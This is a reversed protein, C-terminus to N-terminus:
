KIKKLLLKDVTKHFIEKNQKRIYLLEEVFDNAWNKVTQTSVRKQLKDLRRRKEEESMTLAQLIANEIEQEDNPNIIIADQLEIAARAMVSLILVGTKERKTAVYEKAVLNMGDRLPSVLAIEAM